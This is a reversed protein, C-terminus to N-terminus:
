RVKVFRQWLGALLLGAVGYLVANVLASCGLMTATIIAPRYNSDRAIMMIGSPWIWFAVSSWLQLADSSPSRTDLYWTFGAAILANVFGIIMLALAVKLKTPMSNKALAIM